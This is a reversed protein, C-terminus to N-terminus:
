KPSRMSMLECAHAYDAHSGIDIWTGTIPYYAVRLGADLAQEILDTADTRCDSPLSALLRNSIIYIGANAHYTFTPKESLAKVARGETQLIAYPVSVTYPVAAITIDAHESAHTLYLEELNIDTLLDSNMVLTNGDPRHAILSASGITGMFRPEVVTRVQVGAVPTSFHRIIQDALYNVTVTINRIGAAALLGINHDIIPKEGVRLLPKPCDLTLPRLREGRGGAMVIADLPLVTPTIRTDIIDVLTADPAVVPILRIGRSRYRRLAEVDISDATMYKFSTHMAVSVPSTTAVGRLLARRIDGDTLTGVVRDSTDVAVLTLEDGSLGNLRELAEILSADASIIHANNM